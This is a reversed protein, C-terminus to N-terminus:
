WQERVTSVLQRVTIFQATGQRVQDVPYENACACGSLTTAPTCYDWPNSTANFEGPPSVGTCLNMLPCNPLLCVGVFSIPLHSTGDFEGPLRDAPCCSPRKCGELENARLSGWACLACRVGWSVWASWNCAASSAVDAM